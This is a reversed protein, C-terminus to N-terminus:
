ERLNSDWQYSFKEVDAAAKANSVQLLQGEYGYATLRLGWRWSGQQPTVQFYNGARWGGEVQFGAQRHRQYESRISSWDSTSLGKPAAASVVWCAALLVLTHRTFSRVPGTMKVALRMQDEM